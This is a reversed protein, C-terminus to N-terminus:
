ANNLPRSLPLMRCLSPTSPFSAFAYAEYQIDEFINTLERSPIYCGTHGNLDKEKCIVVCRVAGMDRANGVLEERGEEQDQGM